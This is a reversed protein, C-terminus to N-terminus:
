CCRRASSVRVSGDALGKPRAGTPPRRAATSRASASGTGALRETFYTVHQRILDRTPALIV